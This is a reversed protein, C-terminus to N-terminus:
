RDNAWRTFMGDYASHERRMNRKLDIFALARRRGAQGMKRALDADRALKAALVGMERWDGAPVVFGTRGHKVFSAQWDRDYAVVPSEALACEMLAMGTLSSITIARPLIAALDKQGVLGAFVLRDGVGMEDAIAKLHQRMEGDGAMIGMGEPVQQLAVAIARLAHDPQKLPHHRGVYIFLPRGPEIGLKRLVRSPDPREGPPMLHIKALYKGHSLSAIREEATGYRHAMARVSDAVAIVMDTRRFVFRMVAQEVRRTRFLKPYGLMGTLRYIEDFEAPVFVVLPRQLLRSLMWGFLGAYLPDNAFVASVNRKRLRRWLGFLLGTQSALFNVPALANPLAIAQSTGEISMQRPSFAALRTKRRVEGDAVDAILNVGIVKHFYGDSHRAHWYDEHGRGRLIRLTYAMDVYVLTRPPLAPDPNM